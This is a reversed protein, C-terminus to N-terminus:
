FISFIISSFSECSNVSAFDGSNCKPIFFVVILIVGTISMNVIYPMKRGIKEYAYGSCLVAFFEVTAMLTANLFQDGVLQGTGLTLSLCKDAYSFTQTSTLILRSIDVLLYGYYILNNTLWNFTLAFTRILLAKSRIFAYLTKLFGVKFYIILKM